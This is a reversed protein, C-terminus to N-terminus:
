KPTLGVLLLSSVLALIGLVRFRRRHAGLAALVGGLFGAALLGNHVGFFATWRAIDPPRDCEPCHIGHAFAWASMAQSAILSAVALVGAWGLAVRVRTPPQPAIQQATASM